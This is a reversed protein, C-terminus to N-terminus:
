ADNVRPTRRRRLGARIIDLGEDFEREGYYGALARLRPFERAPLRYLGLRLLDDREDPDERREQL